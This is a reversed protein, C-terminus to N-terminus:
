FDIKVYAKRRVWAVRDPFMAQYARDICADLVNHRSLPDLADKNLKDAIEAIMQERSRNIPPRWLARRYTTVM